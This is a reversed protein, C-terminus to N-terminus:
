VGTNFARIEASVWCFSPLIVKYHTVFLKLIGFCYRSRCLVSVGCHKLLSDFLYAVSCTKLLNSMWKCHIILLYAKRCRAIQNTKSFHVQASKDWIASSIMHNGISFCRSVLAIRSIKKSLWGLIHAIMHWFALGSIVQVSETGLNTSIKKTNTKLLLIRDTDLM